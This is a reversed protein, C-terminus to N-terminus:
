CWPRPSLLKVGWIPCGFIDCSFSFNFLGQRLCYAEHYIDMLMVRGEGVSKQLGKCTKLCDWLHLMHETPRHEVTPWRVGLKALLSDGRLILLDVWVIGSDEGLRMSEITSTFCTFWMSASTCLEDSALYGGELKLRAMKSRGFREWSMDTPKVLTSVSIAYTFVTSLCLGQVFLGVLDASM